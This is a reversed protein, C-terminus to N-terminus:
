QDGSMILVVIVRRPGHAGMVIIKEIDGTRSPGTILSVMSNRSATGRERMWDFATALTPALQVITAVVIHVPAVISAGRGGCEASVFVSGTAAVLSEALTITAQCAESPGREGSWSIQRETTWASALQRLMPSAQVFIEGPPLGALIDSIAAASAAMESMVLCETGNASCEQQFRELPNPISIFIQRSPYAHRLPTPAQLASQIRRLIRERGANETKSV